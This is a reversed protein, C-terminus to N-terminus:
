SINKTNGEMKQHKRDHRYMGILISALSIVECVIAGVSAYYINYILWAPSSILGLRRTMRSNGLMFAVSLATMGIVPLIEIVFHVFTPETGFVTFNLVYFAVYCAIFACLWAPHSAHTKKEFLFLVARTTALINLLGGITAGLLFYSIAFLAGGLLQCFVLHSQKKQQYSLINYAMAVISVAQGAIELPQM